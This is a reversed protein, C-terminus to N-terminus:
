QLALQRPDTAVIEPKGRHSTITGTACINKGLFTREPEGFRQRETGWILVAFSQNPYPRDFNLFTPQGKSHVAYNASAVTGCVTATEGVHAAAQDAKLKEGATAGHLAVLTFSLAALYRM